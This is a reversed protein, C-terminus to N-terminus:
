AWESLVVQECLLLPSQGLAMSFRHLSLLALLHISHALYRLASHPFIRLPAHTFLNIPHLFFRLASHTFLCVLHLLVHLSLLALAGFSFACIPSSALVHLALLPFLLAQSRFSPPLVSLPSLSLAHHNRAWRKIHAV